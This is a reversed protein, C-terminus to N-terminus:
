GKRMMEALRAVRQPTQKAWKSNLMQEAAIGFQFGDVAALMGVFSALGGAGMQYAMSVLVLQRATSLKGFVPVTVAAEYMAQLVDVLSLVDVIARPLGRADLNHGMGITLAGSTCRYPMLKLGEDAVLLEQAQEVVRWTDM